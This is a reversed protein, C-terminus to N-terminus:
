LNELGGFCRKHGVWAMSNFCEGAKTWFTDSNQETMLRTTDICASALATDETSAFKSRKRKKRSFSSKSSNCPYSPHGRLLQRLPIHQRSNNQRMLLHSRRLPLPFFVSLFIKWTQQPTFTELLSLTNCVHLFMHLHTENLRRCHFFHQWLRPDSKTNPPLNSERRVGPLKHM